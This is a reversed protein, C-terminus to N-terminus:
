SRFSPTRQLLIWGHHSCCLVPRRRVGTRIFAANTDNGLCPIDRYVAVGSLIFMYVAMILPRTSEDGGAIQDLYLM